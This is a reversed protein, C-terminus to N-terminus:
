RSLEAEAIREAYEEHGTAKAAVHLWSAFEAASVEEGGFIAEAQLFVERGVSGEGNGAALHARLATRDTALLRIPAALVEDLEERM